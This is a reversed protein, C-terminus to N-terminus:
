RVLLGDLTTTAGRHDPLAFRPATATAQLAPGRGRLFFGCGGTAAFSLLALSAAALWRRRTPLAPLLSRPDPRAMRAPRRERGSLPKVSALPVEAHCRLREATAIPWRGPACSRYFGKAELQKILSSRVSM